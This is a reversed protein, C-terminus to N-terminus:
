DEDTLLALHSPPSAANARAGHAALAMARMQACVEDPDKGEDVAWARLRNGSTPWATDLAERPECPAIAGRRARPDYLRLVGTHTLREAEDFAYTLTTALRRRHPQDPLASWLQVVAGDLLPEGRGLFAVQAQEWALAMSHAQGAHDTAALLHLVLRFHMWSRRFGASSAARAFADIEEEVVEYVFRDTAWARSIPAPIRRLEGAHPWSAMERVPTPDGLWQRAAARARARASTPSPAHFTGLVEGWGAVACRDILAEEGHCGARQWPALSRLDIRRLWAGARQNAHLRLLSSPATSILLHEGEVRGSPRTWHSVRNMWTPDPQTCRWLAAGPAHPDQWTRM